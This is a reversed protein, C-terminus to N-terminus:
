WEWKRFHITYLCVDVDCDISSDMEIHDIEMWDKRSKDFRKVLWNFVDIRDDRELGREHSGVVRVVLKDKTLSVKRADVFGYGAWHKLRM